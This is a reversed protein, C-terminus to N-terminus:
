FNSIKDAEIEEWEEEIDDWKYAKLAYVMETDSHKYEVRASDSQRHSFHYKKGEVKPKKRWQLKTKGIPSEFVFYEAEGQKVKGESTDVFLDERGQEEIPFNKKINNKITEWRDPTM